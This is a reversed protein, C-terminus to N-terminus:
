SAPGASRGSTSPGNGVIAAYREHYERAETSGAFDHLLIRDLRRALVVTPWVLRTADLAKSGAACAEDLKRLGALALALILHTRAFGSPDEAESDRSTYFSAIVRRTVEVAEKHRGLLLLSTATYPPDGALSISFAGRTPTGNSLTAIAKEARRRVDTVKEHDGLRAWARMEQVLLKAHVVTGRPTVSQGRQAQAVADRAHGDYFSLLVRTQAAWGALEPCRAAQGWREADACWVLSAAHDKLDCTVLALLNSLWSTMVLFDRKGSTSDPGGPRLLRGAHVRVGLLEDYLEAPPVRRFTRKYHGIVTDMNELMATDTDPFGVQRTVELAQVVRPLKSTLGAGAYGFVERRTPVTSVEDDKQEVFYGPYAETSRLAVDVVPQGHDPSAVAAAALEFEVPGVEDPEDQTANGARRWRALQAKAKALEAAQRQHEVIRKATEFEHFAALLGGNAGVAADVSQWFSEDASRRGKEIHM